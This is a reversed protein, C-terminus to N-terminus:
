RLKREQSSSTKKRAVVLGALGITVLTIPALLGVVAWSVTGYAAWLALVAFACAALGITLAAIDSRM